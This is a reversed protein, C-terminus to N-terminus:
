AAKWGRTAHLVYKKGDVVKTIHTLCRGYAVGKSIVRGRAKVLRDLKNQMVKVQRKKNQAMKKFEPSDSDVTTTQTQKPEEM